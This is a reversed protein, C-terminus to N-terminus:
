ERICGLAMTLEIRRESAAHVCSCRLVYCKHRERRRCVNCLVVTVLQWWRGDAALSGGRLACILWAM